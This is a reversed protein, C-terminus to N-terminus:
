QRRHRTIRVCSSEKINFKERDVVIFCLQCQLVYIGVCSGCHWYLLSSFPPFASLFSRKEDGQGREDEGDREMEIKKRNRTRQRGTRKRNRTRQRGTRKINRTRNRGAWKRNRTPKMGQGEPSRRRSLIM